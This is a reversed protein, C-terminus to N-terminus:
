VVSDLYVRAEFPRLSIRTPEEVLSQGAGSHRYNTAACAFRRRPAGAIRSSVRAPVQNGSWNVLVLVRRPEGPLTDGVPLFRTYAIVDRSATKHLLAFRGRRLVRYDRRLVLLNRYWSLISHPNSEQQEVNIDVHNPNVAIWPDGSTFGAHRAASWQMPTRSNDRHQQLMQAWALDPDEGRELDRYYWSLAHRDRFEEMGAFPYNTMGIEEGQYIFPTGWATLLVAAIATASKGHLERDNGFTSVQRPLDHNSFFQADWGRPSLSRYWRQMNQQIVAANGPNPLFLQEFHHIMNLEGRDHDVYQRSSSATTGGTEGVTFVNYPAFVRDHMEQLYAHTEPLNKYLRFEYEHSTDHFDPLGEPKGIHHVADLRFANVGHEIWFEAIRHMEERVEPNAWNLDPQRTSFTHLYYQGTKGDLQWASGGFYSDWNNPLSGDPQTGRWIYWDRKANNRSSRSEVFWPHEDSTHNMVLDMMIKIDRRHAEDTMRRFLDLDGFEPHIQRYDSIDYGNDDNPSDCFPSLWIVDVGLQQLYDIKAIVGGFDGIGDANSDLFSRTYIQYVVADKWWERPLDVARM